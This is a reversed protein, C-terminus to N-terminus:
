IYIFTKLTQFNEADPSLGLGYEKYFVKLTMQVQRNTWINIKM